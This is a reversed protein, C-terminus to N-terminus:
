ISSRGMLVVAKLGAAKGTRRLLENGTLAKGFHSLSEGDHNVWEAPARLDQIKAFSTFAVNQFCSLM